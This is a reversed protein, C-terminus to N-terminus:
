TDLIIVGLQFHPDDLSHKKVSPAKRVIDRVIGVGFQHAHSWVHETDPVQIDLLLPKMIDTYLNPFGGM